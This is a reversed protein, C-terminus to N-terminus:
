GGGMWPDKPDRGGRRPAHDRGAVQDTTRQKNGTGPDNGHDHERHETDAVDNAQREGSENWDPNQTTRNEAM